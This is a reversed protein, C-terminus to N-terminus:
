ITKAVSLFKENLIAPVKKAICFNIPIGESSFMNEHETRINWEPENQHLNRTSEEVEFGSMNFYRLSDNFLPLDDTKFYIEGGEKLFKRYQILQRPHTLRHKAHGSKYWPNCFNIYIRSVADKPSLIDTIKEINYATIKVNEPDKKAKEFISEINRKAVVLMEAKIDVGLFRISPNNLAMNAIFSGKGCGLELYFPTDSNKFATVWKEKYDKPDDIFHTWAALEPRAYPKFRTRM